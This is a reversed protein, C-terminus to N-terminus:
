FDTGAGYCEPNSFIPESSIKQTGGERETTAGQGWRKAKLLEQRSAACCWLNARAALKAWKGGEQGGAQVSKM